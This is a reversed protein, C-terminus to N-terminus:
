QLLKLVNFKNQNFMQIGFIALQEQVQNSKLNTIEEAINADSMTSVSNLENEEMVTYLDSQYDLRQAYAGMTTIEDLDAEFASDINDINSNIADSLNSNQISVSNIANDISNLDINLNGNEDMLGLGKASLDKLKITDYGTISAVNINQNGSLLSKGNYEIRSNDDIQAVLQNISQQTTSRDSSNNTGNSASIIKDKINSLIGLTNESAKLATKLMANANQANQNSQQISGINSYIRQTIAYQSPNYEASPVKSGTTIRQIIKQTNNQIRNLNNLNNTVNFNSM